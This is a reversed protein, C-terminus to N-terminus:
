KPLCNGVLGYNKATELADVCKEKSSFEQMSVGVQRKNQSIQTQSMSNPDPGVFTIYFLMLVYSM